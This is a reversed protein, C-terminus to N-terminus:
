QCYDYKIEHYWFSLLNISDFFFKRELNVCIHQCIHKCQKSTFQKIGLSEEKLNNLVNIFGLTVLTVPLGLIKFPM